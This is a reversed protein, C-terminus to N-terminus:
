CVCCLHNTQSHKFGNEFIFNRKRANEACEFRDWCYSDRSQHFPAPYLLMWHCKWPFAKVKQLLFSMKMSESEAFPFDKGCVNQTTRSTKMQFKGPSNRHQHSRSMKMNMNINIWLSLDTIVFLNNRPM